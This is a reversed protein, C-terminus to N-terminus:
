DPDLDVLGPLLRVTLRGADVDVERIVEETAPLLIEGHLGHVVYVDNAGSTDLIEVLEGLAKGEETQVQLGLLQFEYYEDAELPVADEIRVEVLQGRLTEAADRDEIGELHLLLRGKHPRAGKVAYRRRESGVYVAPLEAVREPYGTLIEM